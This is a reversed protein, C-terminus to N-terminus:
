TCLQELQKRRVRYPVSDEHQSMGNKVSQAPKRAGSEEEWNDRLTPLDAWRIKNGVVAFIETGRNALLKRPGQYDEKTREVNPLANQSSRKSPSAPLGNGPLDTFIRSGASPRALWPPTYSSIRPMGTLRGGKAANQTPGSIRSARLGRLVLHASLCM